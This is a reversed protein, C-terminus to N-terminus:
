QGLGMQVLGKKVESTKHALRFFSERFELYSFV